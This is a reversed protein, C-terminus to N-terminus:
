RRRKYYQNESQSLDKYDDATDGYRNQRVSENEIVEGEKKGVCKMGPHRLCTREINKQKKEKVFGFGQVACASCGAM